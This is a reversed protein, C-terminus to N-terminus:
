LLKPQPKIKKELMECKPYHRKLNSRRNTKYKNCISCTFMYINSHIKIHQTLNKKEGFNRGCEQCTHPKNGEHVTSIHVNLHGKRAFFNDCGPCKHLKQKLHVFNVHDKLQDFRTFSGDCQKCSFLKTKEHVDNIHRNLHGRTIYVKACQNCEFKKRTEVKFHYNKKRKIVDKKLLQNQSNLQNCALRLSEKKSRKLFRSQNKATIDTSNKITCCYGCIECKFPKKGVHVTGKKYIPKVNQVLGQEEKHKSRINTLDFVGLDISKQIEEFPESKIIRETNCVYIHIDYNSKTEFQLSCQFCYLDAVLTEEM